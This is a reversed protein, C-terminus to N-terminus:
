KRVEVREAAGLDILHDALCQEDCYTERGYIIGDDGDYLEADCHECNTVVEPEFPLPFRDVNVEGEKLATISEDFELYDQRDKRSFM